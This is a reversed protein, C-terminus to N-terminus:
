SKKEGKETQCGRIIIKNGERCIEVDCPGDFYVLTHPYQYLTTKHPIEEVLIDFLTDAALDIKKTHMLDGEYFLEIWNRNESVGMIMGGVGKVRDLLEEESLSARKM